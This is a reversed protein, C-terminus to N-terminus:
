QCEKIERIKNNVIQLNHKYGPSDLMERCSDCVELNKFNQEHLESAIADFVRYAIEEQFNMVLNPMFHEFMGAMHMAEVFEGHIEDDYDDFKNSMEVIHNLWDLSDRDAGPHNSSIGQINFLPNETAIAKLEARKVDHRSTFHRFTAKHILGFWKASMAHSQLRSFQNKTIGVYLLRDNEDFYRYLINHEM